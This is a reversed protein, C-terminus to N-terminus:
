LFGKQPGMRFQPRDVDELDGVVAGGVLVGAELGTDPGPEREDRDALAVPVPM